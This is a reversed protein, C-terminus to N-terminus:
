RKEQLIGYISGYLLVNHFTLIFIYLFETRIWIKFQHILHTFYEAIVVIGITCLLYIALPYESIDIEKAPFGMWVHKPGLINFTKKGM